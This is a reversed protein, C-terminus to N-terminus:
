MDNAFYSSVNFQLVQDFDSPELIVDITNNGTYSLQEAGCINVFFEIISEQMAKNTAKVWFNEDV